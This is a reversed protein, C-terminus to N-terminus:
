FGGVRLLRNRVKTNHKITIYLTAIACLDSVTLSRLFLIVSHFIFNVM